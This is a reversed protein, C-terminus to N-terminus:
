EQPYRRSMIRVYERMTATIDPVPESHGEPPDKAMGLERQSTAAKYDRNIRQVLEYLEEMSKEDLRARFVELDDEFSFGEAPSRPVGDVDRVYFAKFADFTSDSMPQGGFLSRVTVSTSTYQPFTVPGAEILRLERLMVLPVKGRREVPDIVLPEATISQGTVAGAEIAQRVPEVLPNDFLRGRGFLGKRDEHVDQWVGIPTMGTQDNGRGHNFLMIPTRATISRQFAGPAIQEDAVIGWDATTIKEDFRAIYGEITLGDGNKIVQPKSGSTRYVIRPEGAAPLLDTM